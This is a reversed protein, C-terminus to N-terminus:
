SSLDVIVSVKEVRQPDLLLINALEDFRINDYVRGTAAMNHEIVAKEPITFGDSTTQLLLDCITLLWLISM